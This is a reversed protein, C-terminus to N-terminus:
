LGRRNVRGLFDVQHAIYVLAGQEVQAHRERQWQEFQKSDLEPHSELACGVTHIIFHLFFAEDESYDGGKAFVVWDSAGAAILEAGASRIYGFLHRGTHSGGSPKGRIVREDMTRHYLEQIKTDLAADITPEFITTGDFNITFYFLGEPGLLNLLGPLTSPIDVLDLFANAILLDWNRGTNSDALFDFVDATRLCVRIDREASLLRLNDPAACEVCYNSRDAWATLYSRAHASNEPMADLATYDARGLLGWDVARTIMTGIGSGIELVRLPENGPRSSIARTLTQWVTTNLSRDDVSKKSTLYRTFPYETPIAM